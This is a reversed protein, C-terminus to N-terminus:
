PVPERSGTLLGSLLHPREIRQGLATSVGSRHMAFYVPRLVITLPDSSLIVEHSASSQAVFGGGHIHILLGHSM